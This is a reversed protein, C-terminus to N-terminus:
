RRCRHAAAGRAPPTTPARSSTSSCSPRRASASARGPGADVGGCLASMPWCAGLLPCPQYRGAGGASCALPKLREIGLPGDDVLLDAALGVQGACAAAAHLGLGRLGAHARVLAGNRTGQKWYMGGLMAPAFQAVAAFSVLGISVLAYAEGAVRYYAYGLMMLVVIAGRRITLLLGTLDARRVLALARWRLLVPM